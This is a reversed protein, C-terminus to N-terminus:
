CVCGQRGWRLQSLWEMSSALRWGLGDKLEPVTAILLARRFIEEEDRGHVVAVCNDEADVIQAEGGAKWEVHWRALLWLDPTRKLVQLAETSM